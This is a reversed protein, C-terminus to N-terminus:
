KTRMLLSLGLIGLIISIILFRFVITPEAWGVQELHHHFPAMKFIRKRTLKYYGVQVIDSLTEIVFVGAIIAYVLEQKIVIVIFGLIAGIAVSGTDGMFIKAPYANYWLFGLCSGILASLLICIEATEAVWSICFCNALEKCGVFYCMIALCTSTTIISTTALGDLGDTINVANSSGIIVFVAWPIFLWGLDIVLNKFIPLHLTTDFNGLFTALGCCGSAILIQILFRTKVSIGHYDHKSVKKYDDVAGVLGFGLMVIICLWLYKNSLNGWIITGLIVSVILLLGGMTPTGAKTVLHSKPGDERIPQGGSQKRKLFLIFRPTFIFVVLFSTIFSAFSRFVVNLM